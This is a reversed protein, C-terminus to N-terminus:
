VTPQLEHRRRMWWFCRPISPMESDSELTSESIDSDSDGLNLTGYNTEDSSDSVVIDESPLMETAVLARKKTIRRQVQLTRFAMALNRLQLQRQARLNCLSTQTAM